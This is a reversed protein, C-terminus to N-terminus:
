SGVKEDRKNPVAVHLRNAVDSVKKTQIKHEVRHVLLRECAQLHSIMRQKM